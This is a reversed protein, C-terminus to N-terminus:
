AKIWEREFETRTVMMRGRRNGPGRLEVWDDDVAAVEWTLTEGRRKFESGIKITIAPPAPFLYYNSM